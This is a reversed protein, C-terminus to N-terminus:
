SKVLGHFFSLFKQDYSSLVAVNQVIKYTLSIKYSGSWKTSAPTYRSAAGVAGARLINNLM